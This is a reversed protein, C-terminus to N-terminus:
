GSSKDHRVAMFLRPTVPQLCAHHWLVAVCPPVSFASLLSSTLPLPWHRLQLLLANVPTGPRGQPGMVKVNLTGACLWADRKGRGEYLRCKMLECGAKSLVTHFPLALHNRLGLLSKAKPQLRKTEGLVDLLFSLLSCVYTCVCACTCLHVQM